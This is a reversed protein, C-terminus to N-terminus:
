QNQEYDEGFFDDMDKYFEDMCDDCYYDGMFDFAGLKGCEDCTATDIFPIERSM